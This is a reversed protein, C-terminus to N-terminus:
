VTQLINNLSFNHCGAKIIIDNEVKIAREVFYNGVKKGIKLVENITKMANFKPMLENLNQKFEMLSVTVGKSTKILNDEITVTCNSLPALNLEEIFESIEHSLQSLLNERFYKKDAEIKNIITEIAEIKEEHGKIINQLEMVITSKNIDAENLTENFLKNDDSNYAKRLEEMIWYPFDNGFCKFNAEDKDCISFYGGSRGYQWCEFKNIKSRLVYEKYEEKNAKIISNKFSTLTKHKKAKEWYYKLYYENKTNELYYEINKGETNNACNYVRFIKDFDSIDCNTEYKEKLYSVQDECTHSHISNLRNENFEEIVQQRADENLNLREVEKLVDDEDIWEYVKINAVIKGERTEFDTNNEQLDELTSFLSYIKENIKSIKRM